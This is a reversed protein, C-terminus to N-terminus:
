APASDAAKRVAAAVFEKFLPHPNVPQSKLEPHAQTAVFWPHDALEIMEVVGIDPNIGSLVLGSAELQERYHNNVEYRHRHRESIEKKGYAAFAKTEEKLVCPCAGLRMTGGKEQVDMQEEM